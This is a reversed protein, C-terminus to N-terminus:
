ISTDWKLIPRVVGNIKGLYAYDRAKDVVEFSLLDKLLLLPMMEDTFMYFWVSYIDDNLFNAPIHCTAEGSKGPQITMDAATSFVIQENANV